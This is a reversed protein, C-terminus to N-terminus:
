ETPAATKGQRAARGEFIVKKYANLYLPTTQKVAVDVGVGTRKAGRNIRAFERGAVAVLGDSRAEDRIKENVYAQRDLTRVNAAKGTHFTHAHNSEHLLTNVADRVPKQDGIAILNQGHQFYGAHSGQIFGVRVNNRKLIAIAERGAKTQSVVKELQNLRAQDAVLPKQAENVAPAAAAAQHPRNVRDWSHGYYEPYTEKTTSTRYGHWVNFIAQVGAAHAKAKLDRIGVWGAPKAKGRATTPPSARVALPCVSAAVLALLWSGRM